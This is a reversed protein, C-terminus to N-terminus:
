GDETTACGPKQQVQASIMFVPKRVVLSMFYRFIQADLLKATFVRVSLSLPEEKFYHRKLIWISYCVTLDEDSQRDWFKLDSNRKRKTENKILTGTFLKETMNLHLWRKKPIAIVLKKPPVRLHLIKSLSM